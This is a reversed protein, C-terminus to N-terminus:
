TRIATNIRMYGTADIYIIGSTDNAVNSQFLIDANPRHDYNTAIHIVDNDSGIAVYLVAGYEMNGAFCRSIGITMWQDSVKGQRSLYDRAAMVADTISFAESKLNLFPHSGATGLGEYDPAVVVYGEALLQELLDQTGQLGQQSPACKDAVGTTGHAWAVIPWGGAPKIGKPTFVLATAQTETGNVGLMKYTMLTRSASANDLVTNTNANADVYVQTKVVPNAINNKPIGDDVVYTSDGGDGSGCATLLFASSILVTLVHKKMKREKAM